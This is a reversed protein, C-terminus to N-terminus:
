NDVASPFEALNIETCTLEAKNAGSPHSTQSKKSQPHEWTCPQQLPIIAQAQSTDNSQPGKWFTNGTLKVPIDM